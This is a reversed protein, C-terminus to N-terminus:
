PAANPPLPRTVWFPTPRWSAQQGIELSPSSCGSGPGAGNGPHSVHQRARLAPSVEQGESLFRESGPRPRRPGPRQDTIAPEPEEGAEHGAGRKGSASPTVGTPTVGGASRFTRVRQAGARPRPARSHVLLPPLLRTNHQPINRACLGSVRRPTKLSRTRKASVETREARHDPPATPGPDGRPHPLAFQAKGLGWTRM